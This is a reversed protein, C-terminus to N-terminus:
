DRRQTTKRHPTVVKLVCGDPKADPYPCEPPQVGKRCLRCIEMRERTEELADNVRKRRAGSAISWISVLAVCIGLVGGTIKIIDDAGTFIALVSGAVGVAGQIATKQTHM